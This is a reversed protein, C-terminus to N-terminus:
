TDVETTGIRKMCVYGNYFAKSPYRQPSGGPHRPQTVQGWGRLPTECAFCLDGDAVLLFNLLSAHIALKTLITFRAAEDCLVDPM